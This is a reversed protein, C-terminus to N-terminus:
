MWYSMKKQIELPEQSKQLEQPEPTEPTGPKKKPKKGNQLWMWYSMKKPTLKLIIKMTAKLKLKLIIRITNTINTSPYQVIAVLTM